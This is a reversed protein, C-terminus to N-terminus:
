ALGYQRDEFFQVPQQEVRNLVFAFFRGFVHEVGTGRGVLLRNRRHIVQHVIDPNFPPHKGSGVVHIRSGGVLDQLGVELDLTYRVFVDHDVVRREAM